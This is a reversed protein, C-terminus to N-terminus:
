LGFRRKFANYNQLAEKDSFAKNYVRVIPIEGDINRAGGSDAGITFEQSVDIDGISSLNDNLTGMSTGGDGNRHIRVGTASRDCVVIIHQYDQGFHGNQKGLIMENDDATDLKVVCELTFDGSAGFNLTSNNAISVEDSSGNFAITNSGSVTGMTGASLTGNNSNRSLDTWTTSGSSFSIKDAADLSLVLGDTVINPNHSFAM